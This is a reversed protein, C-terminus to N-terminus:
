PAEVILEAASFVNVNDPEPVDTVVSSPPEVAAVLLVNVNFKPPPVCVKIASELLWNEVILALKVAAVVIVVKVSVASRVKATDPVPTRDRVLMFVAIVARFTVPAAPKAPSIDAVANVENVPTLVVPLLEIVRM